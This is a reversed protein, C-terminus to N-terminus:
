HRSNATSKGPMFGYPQESILVQSRLRAEVVREWTMSHTIFKIGRYNSYNQMDDKNKFVLVLIIRMWAEPMRERDLIRNFLRTLFGVAM